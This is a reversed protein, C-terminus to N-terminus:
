GAHNAAVLDARVARLDARARERDIEPLVHTSFRAERYLESLSRLASERVGFSALARAVMDSSTDSRRLPMGARRLSSEVALWSAIIAEAVSGRQLIEDLSDTVAGAVADAVAARTAEGLPREVRRGPQGRRGFARAGLRPSLLPLLRSAVLLAVLVAAAFAILVIVVFLGSGHGSPAARSNSPIFSAGPPTSTSVVQRSQTGFAFAHSPTARSVALVVLLGLLCLVAAGLM